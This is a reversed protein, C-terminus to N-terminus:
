ATEVVKELALYAEKSPQIHDVVLRVLANRDGQRLAAIMAGHEECAQRLLRPDAVRYSRIAHALWAYHAIADVLHPNGCAAFLENHFDSNLRHVARLDGREVARRHTAHIAELRETLADPAPLPIRRAAHAQLVERLEYIHEVEAPPFYRVACGKNRERVVIGIRELEALAQRVQHRTAGLREMLMDEVLRERPKLRGFIIDAELTRVIEELRQGAARRDLTPLSQVTTDSM